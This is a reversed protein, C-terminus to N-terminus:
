IRTFNEGFVYHQDSNISYRHEFHKDSLEFDFYLVNKKLAKLKFGPCHEWKSISNGIQIALISKCTDSFLICLEGEYWFVSFLMKPIPKGKAEDM